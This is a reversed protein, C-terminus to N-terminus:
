NKAVATVDTAKGAEAEAGQVAIIAMVGDDGLEDLTKRLADASKPFFRPEPPMPIPQSGLARVSAAMTAMTRYMGNESASLIEFLDFTESMKLAQYVVRKTPSVVIDLAPRGNLSNDKVRYGAVLKYGNADIEPEAPVTDSM